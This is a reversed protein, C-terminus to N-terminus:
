KQINRDLEKTAEAGRARAADPNSYVDRQVEGKTPCGFLGVSMVLLVLVVGIRRM